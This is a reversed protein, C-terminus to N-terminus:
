ADRWSEPAAATAQGQPPFASFFLSTPRLVPAQEVPAPTPVRRRLAPMRADPSGGELEKARAVRHDEALTVAAELSMAPPLPGMATNGSTAGGGIARACDQGIDMQDLVAWCIDTFSGRSFEFYKRNCTENVCLNM